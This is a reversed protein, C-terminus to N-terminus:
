SPSFELHKEGYKLYLLTCLDLCFEVPLLDFRANGIEVIPENHIINFARRRININYM